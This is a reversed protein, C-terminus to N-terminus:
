PKILLSGGQRSAIKNLFYSDYTSQCNPKVVEQEQKVQLAQLHSTLRAMFYLNIM